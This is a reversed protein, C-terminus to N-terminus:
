VCRFADLTGDERQHLGCLREGNAFAVQYASLIFPLKNAMGEDAEGLYTITKVAGLARIAPPLQAGTSSFSGDLAKALWETKGAQDPMQPTAALKTGISIDDSGLFVGSLKIGSSGEFRSASVLTVDLVERALMSGWAFHFKSGDTEVSATANLCAAVLDDGDATVRCYRSHFPHWVTRRSPGKPVTRPTDIRWIGILTSGKVTVTEMPAEQALAPASLLFLLLVCNGMLIDRDSM